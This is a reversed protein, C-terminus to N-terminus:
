ALLVSFQSPAPRRRPACRSAGNRKHLLRDPRIRYIDRPFLTAYRINDAELLRSVWRQLGIAFGGHPPM